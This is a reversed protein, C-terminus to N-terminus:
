GREPQERLRERAYQFRSPAGRAGFASQLELPQARAEFGQDASRRGWKPQRRWARLPDRAVLEKLRDEVEQLDRRNRLRQEQHELVNM